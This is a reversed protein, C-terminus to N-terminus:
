SPDISRGSTVTRQDAGREDPAQVWVAKGGTDLQVELYEELDSVAQPDRYGALYVMLGYPRRGGVTETRDPRGLMAIVGARSRGILSGCRALDEALARRTKEAQTEREPRLGHRSAQWAARDFHVSACDRGGCAALAMAVLVLLSVRM